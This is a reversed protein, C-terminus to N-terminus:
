GKMLLYGVTITADRTDENVLLLNIKEAGLLNFTDRYQYGGEFGNNRSSTPDPLQANLLTGNPQYLRVFKMAARGGQGNLMLTVSQYTTVSIDVAKTESPRLVYDVLLMGSPPPVTPTPQAPAARGTGLFSFLAVALVVLGFTAIAMRVNM